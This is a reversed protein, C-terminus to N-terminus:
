FSAGSEIWWLDEEHGTGDRHSLSRRTMPSVATTSGIAGVIACDPAEVMFTIRHTGGSGKGPNQQRYLGRRFLTTQRETCKQHRTHAANAALDRLQGVRRVRM